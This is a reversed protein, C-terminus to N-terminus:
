RVPIAACCYQLISSLYQGSWREVPGHIDSRSAAHPTGNMVAGESSPLDLALGVGTRTRQERLRRRITEVARERNSSSNLQSSANLVADDTVPLGAASNSAQLKVEYQPQGCCFVNRVINSAFWLVRDDTSGAHDTASGDKTVDIWSGGTAGNGADRDGAPSMRTRLDNAGSGGNNGGLMSSTRGYASTARRPSPSVAFASGTVSARLSIPSSATAFPALLSTCHVLHFSAKGKRDVDAVVYYSTFGMCALNLFLSSKSFPSDTPKRAQDIMDAFAGSIQNVSGPRVSSDRESYSLSPTQSASASGAGGFPSDMGSLMGDHRADRSSRTRAGFVIPPHQIPTFGLRALGQSLLALAVERRLERLLTRFVRCGEAKRNLRRELVHLHPLGKGRSGASVLHQGSWLLAFLGTQVDIKVDLCMDELVVIRLALAQARDASASVLATTGPKGSHEDSVLSTVLPDEFSASSGHPVPAQLFVQLQRLRHNAHAVVVRDVVPELDVCSPSIPFTLDSGVSLDGGFSHLPPNHLMRVRCDDDSGVIYFRIFIRDLPASGSESIQSVAALAHISTAPTDDTLLQSPDVKSASRVTQGELPISDADPWYFVTVSRHQVYEIRVTREGGFRRKLNSTAQTHLLELQLSRCVGQLRQYLTQLPWRGPDTYLKHNLTKLILDSHRSSVVHEPENSTAASSATTLVSSRLLFRLSTLAWKIRESDSLPSEPPLSQPAMRLSIGVQLRVCDSHNLVASEVVAVV